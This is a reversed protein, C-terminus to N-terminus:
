NYKTFRDTSFLKDYVTCATGSMVFLDDTWPLDVKM